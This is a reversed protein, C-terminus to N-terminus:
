TKKAVAFLSTGKFPKKFLKTELKMLGKFASNILPHPPQFGIKSINKRFFILVLKRLFVVPILLLGWYSIYEIQLGVSTLLLEFEKKNYRKVHGTNKDYASYLVKLAPVNIMVIGGPKLCNLSTELFEKENDIHEIVDLLLIGTFKNNIIQSQDFINYLYRNGQVNEIKKLAIENLDCGDIKLGLQSQFMQMNIGNGCGIELFRIKENPKSVFYKQIIKFRWIMWFHNSDAIDYWEDDMAVGEPNSIYIIDNEINSFEKSRFDMNMNNM